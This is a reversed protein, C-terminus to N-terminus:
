VHARGIQTCCFNIYDTICSTIVDIDEGHPKCPVDWQTTELCGKLSEVAEPSWKRVTRTTVAQRQILAKYWSKLHVLNHDSCGLPPLATSKYAEKVNAYLLDLTKNKRMKCDVFQSFTPLCSSLTVHNFDGSVIFASPSQNQVRAITSHIVNCVADANASPPIYVACLIAHSFEGGAEAACDASEEHLCLM